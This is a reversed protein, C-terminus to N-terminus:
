ASSLRRFSAFGCSGSKRRVFWREKGLMEFGRSVLLSFLDEAHRDLDPFEHFEMVIREVKALSTDSASELQEYESGECDIKLIDIEPLGGVVRDFPVSEVDVFKDSRRTALSHCGSSGHISLRARGGSTTVAAMSLRAESVRNVLMNQSLLAFNDPEPEYAALISPNLLRHALLCFCGIHAGIDVVIPRVRTKITGLGYVDRLFVERVVFADGRGQRYSILTGDAMTWNKLGDM